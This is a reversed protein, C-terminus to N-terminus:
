YGSQPSSAPSPYLFWLFVAKFFFLFAAKLITKLGGWGCLNLLM